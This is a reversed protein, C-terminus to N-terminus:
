AWIGQEIKGDATWHIYNYLPLERIREVDEGIFESIFDIDRPENQKFTYMEKVQSSLTRNVRYPRQSLAILTIHRHRGRQVINAFEFGLSHSDTFRDIEEVVLVMNGCAWVLECVAAFDEEPQLPQYVLRFDEQYHKQWFEVLSPIDQFIVGQTYEGLTDYVLFRNFGELHQKVLYSKGGGRKGLILIIKREESTTDM